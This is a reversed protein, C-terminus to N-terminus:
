LGEASQIQQRIQRFRDPGGFVQYLWAAPALRMAAILAQRTPSMDQGPVFISKLWRRAVAPRQGDGQPFAYAAYLQLLRGRRDARSALWDAYTLYAYPSAPDANIARLYPLHERFDGLLPRLRDVVTRLM